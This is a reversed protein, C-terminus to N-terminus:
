RLAPLGRQRRAQTRFGRQSLRVKRKSGAAQIEVAVLAQGCGSTSLLPRAPDANTKRRV